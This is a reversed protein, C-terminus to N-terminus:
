GQPLAPCLARSPSAETGAWGAPPGPHLPSFPSETRGLWLFAARHKPFPTAQTRGSPRTIGWRGSDMLCLSALGLSWGIHRVILVAVEFCHMQVKLNSMCSVCPLFKM